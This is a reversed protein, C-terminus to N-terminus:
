IHVGQVDLFKGCCAEIRQVVFSQRRQNKAQQLLKQLLTQSKSRMLGYLGAKHYLKSQFERSVFHTLLTELIPSCALQLAARM